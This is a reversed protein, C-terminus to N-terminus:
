VGRRSWIKLSVWIAWIVKTSTSFRRTTNKRRFNGQNVYFNLVGM